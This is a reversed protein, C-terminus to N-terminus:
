PWGLPWWCKIKKILVRFDYNICVCLVPSVASRCTALSLTFYDFKRSESISEALLYPLWCVVTLFAVAILTRSMPSKIIDADGDNENSLEVSLNQYVAQPQSARIEISPQRFSKVFLIIINLIFVAGVLVLNIKGSRELQFFDFAIIESRVLVFFDYWKLSPSFAINTTNPLDQWFTDLSAHWSDRASWSLHVETALPM